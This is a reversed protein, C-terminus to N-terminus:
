PAEKPRRRARHIWRAFAGGLVLLVGAFLALLYWRRTRAARAVPPNAPDAPVEDRVRAELFRVDLGVPKQNTMAVLRVQATPGTGCECQHVTEFEGGAAEPSWLYSLTGGTRKLCLRGTRDSCPRVDPGNADQWLLLQQDGPRVMRAFLIEQPTPGAMTLRIGVGVGFSPPPPSDIHLIAFALTIEFDGLLGIPTQLGIGGWQHRFSAPLTIRLGEPEPHFYQGEEGQYLVLEPPLPRGRFDYTFDMRQRVPRQEQAAVGDPPM